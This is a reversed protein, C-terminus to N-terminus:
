WEEDEEMAIRRRGATVATENSDDGAALEIAADIQRTLSREELHELYRQAATTYFESRSMGIAAACREVRSYTEDPVSIATKM